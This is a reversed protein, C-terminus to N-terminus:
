ASQTAVLLLCEDQACAEGCLRCAGGRNHKCIEQLREFALHVEEEGASDISLDARRPADFATQTPSVDEKGLVLEKASQLVRAAERGRPTTRYLRRDTGVRELFKRSTLLRVYREARVYNTNSRYVLGTM